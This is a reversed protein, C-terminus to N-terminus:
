IEETYWGPQKKKPRHNCRLEWYVWLLIKIHHSLGYQEKFVKLEKRTPSLCKPNCKVQHLWIMGDKLSIVDAIGFVDTNKSWRNWTPKFTLHGKKELIKQCQREYYRGKRM